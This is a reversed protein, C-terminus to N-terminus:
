SFAKSEMWQALGHIVMFFYPIGSFSFFREHLNGTILTSYFVLVTQCLCSTDFLSTVHQSKREQDDGLSHSSVFLQGHLCRCWTSSWVVSSSWSKTSWTASSDEVFSSIWSSIALNCSALLTPSLILLSFALTILTLEFFCLLIMRLSGPVTLQTLLFYIRLSEITWHKGSKIQGAGILQGQTELAAVLGFHISLKDLIYIPEHVQTCCDRHFPLVFCLNREHKM